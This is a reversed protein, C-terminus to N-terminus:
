TTSGDGRRERFRLYVVAAGAMAWALIPHWLPVLLVSLRNFAIRPVKAESVYFKAGAIRGFDAANLRCPLRPGTEIGDQSYTILAHARASCILVQGPPSVGIDFVGGRWDVFFGQEFGDPGYRQVRGSYVNAVFVRGNPATVRVADFTNPLEIRNLIEDPVLHLWLPQLFCVMGLVMICIAIKRQLDSGAQPQDSGTLESPAAM